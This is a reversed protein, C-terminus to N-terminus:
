FRRAEMRMPDTELWGVCRRLCNNVVIMGSTGGKGSKKEQVIEMIRWKSECGASVPCGHCKAVMFTRAFEEAGMQRSNELNTM